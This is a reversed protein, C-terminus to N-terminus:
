LYELSHYLNLGISSHSSILTSFVLFEVFLEAHGNNRGKGDIMEVTDLLKITSEM